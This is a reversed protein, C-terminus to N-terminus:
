KELSVATDRLERRLIKGVGTKPLSDVMHIKGPVKFSSTKTKMYEILEVQSLTTDPGAVVFAVINEGYTEDPVGVIAVEAVGPFGYLIDELEAPYINEGGRIIMDKVRDVVFLYGKEDLYGVDGTHLWGNKMAEETKEPLNYYGKMVSPGKMVIEGPKGAPLPNDDPDFIRLEINHYALGASGPKYSKSRRNASGLGAAETLGYIERIRCSFRSEFSRALEESLPSAGCIVEKLSSLHFENAKPHNMMLSLMTPVAPIMNCDYKEILSMFQEPEFWAMQVGFSGQEVIHKPILYGSVMVGVGFIHAMPMASMSIYPGEWTDLENAKQSAEGQAQLNDHTLMVGKPKGTTGSTYMMIAVDEGKITPLKKEIENALFPELAYERPTGDVNDEGGLVVIWKIHDLGRAAERIRDLCMTDTVVGEAGSDSLIYRIEPASLAFMIPIATAGCRFISGFVPFIMPHNVMCLVVNSGRGIGMRSFATHLRRSDDFLQVNTYTKNDFILSKHEGHEQIAHEALEVLNM